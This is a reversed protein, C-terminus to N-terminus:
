REGADLEDKVSSAAPYVAGGRDVLFPEWEGDSASRLGYTGRMRAGEEIWARLASAATRGESWGLRYWAEGFGRYAIEWHRAVSEMGRDDAGGDPTTVARWPDSSARAM